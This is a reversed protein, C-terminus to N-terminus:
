LPGEPGRKKNRGVVHTAIEVLAGLSLAVGSVFTKLLTAAIEAVVSM